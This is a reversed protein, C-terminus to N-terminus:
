FVWLLFADQDNPFGMEMQLSFASSTLLQGLDQVQSTTFSVNLGPVTLDSVVNRDWKVDPSTSLISVSPYGQSSLLLLCAM